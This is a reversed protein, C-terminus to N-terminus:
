LRCISRGQFGWAPGPARAAGPSGPFGPRWCAAFCPEQEPLQQPADYRGLWFQEKEVMIEM